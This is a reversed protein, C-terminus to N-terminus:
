VEQAVPHSYLRRLRILCLRATCVCCHLCCPAFIDPCLKYIEMPVKDPGAVKGPKGARIAGAFQVEITPDLVFNLQPVARKPPSTEAFAKTFEAPDMAVGVQAADATTRAFRKLRGSVDRPSMENAEKRVASTAADRLFYKQARVLAKIDCSYKQALNWDEVNCLAQSKEYARTWAKAAVDMQRTWFDRYRAPKPRVKKLWPRPLLSTFKAYVGVLEEESGSSALLAALRPMEKTYSAIVGDRLPM